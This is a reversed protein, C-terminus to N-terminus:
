CSRTKDGGPTADCDDRRGKGGVLLDRGGGGNLRDNGADGRLKDRGAGGRLLDKGKGGAAVDKGGGTNARDKGALGCVRDRGKGSKIRDKEDTGVIVDDQPTGNTRVGATAVITATRGRCVPRDGGLFRTLAFNEPNPGQETTGAAVIAGDAQVLLSTVNGEGDGTQAVGGTGFDTDLVGASTLRAVSSDPGNTVIKGDPQIAIAGATANQGFAPVALGGNGFTGDLSGDTNYRALIANEIDASPDFIAQLGGAVLKGDGQRALGFWIGADGSDTVVLGDGDFSGDLSGDTNLRALLFDFAGAPPDIAGAVAVRGDPLLSISLVNEDGGLDYSAVGGAGFGGDPVGNPGLRIVTLDEPGGFTRVGAVISGDGLVAADSVIESAGGGAVFIGDGDFSNDLSGDANYRVFAVDQNMGPGASGAVVIRGDPMLAIARPDVGGMSTIVIGDGDFSPDLSGDPNYRVLGLRGQASGVAVIKGDPQLAADTLVDDGGLDTIVRGGDGFTPDLDGPLALATSASCALTALSAIVLLGLRRV